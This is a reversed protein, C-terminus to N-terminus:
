IADFLRALLFLIGWGGKLLSPVAGRGENRFPSVLPNLCISDPFLISSQSLDFNKGARSFLTMNLLDGFPPSKHLLSSCPIEEDPSRGDARGNEDPEGNIGMGRDRLSGVSVFQCILHHLPLPDPVLIITVIAM